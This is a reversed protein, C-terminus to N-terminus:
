DGGALAIRATIGDFTVLHTLAGQKLTVQWPTRARPVLYRSVAFVVDEHDQVSIRLNEGFPKLDHLSAAPHPQWDKGDAVWFSYGDQGAKVGFAQDHDMAYQVARALDASLKLAMLEASNGRSKPAIALAVAGAMAGIVVLTILMEVLTVGADNRRNSM